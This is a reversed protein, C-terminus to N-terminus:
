KIWGRKLFHYIISCDFCLWVGSSLDQEKAKIKKGYLDFFSGVKRNQRWTKLSLMGPKVM